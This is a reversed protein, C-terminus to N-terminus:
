EHKETTPQLPHDYEACDVAELALCTASSLFVQDARTPSRADVVPKVRSCSVLFTDAPAELTLVVRDM